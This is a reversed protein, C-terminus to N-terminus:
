KILSTAGTREDVVWDVVTTVVFWATVMIIFGICVNLFINKATKIKDQEGTMYLFGGYVMLVTALPISFAIARYILYNVTNIFSALSCTVNRSPEKPNVVGDCRVLGYGFTSDVNPSSNNGTGTSNSPPTQAKVTKINPLTFVFLIFITTFLSFTIIIRKM